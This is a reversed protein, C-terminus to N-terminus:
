GGQPCGFSSPSLPLFLPTSLCRPTRGRQRKPVKVVFCRMPAFGVAPFAPRICATRQPLSPDNRLISPAATQLAFKGIVKQWVAHPIAAKVRSPKRPQFSICGNGLASLCFLLMLWDSANSGLFEMAPNCRDAVFLVVFVTSLVISAHCLMNWLRHRRM